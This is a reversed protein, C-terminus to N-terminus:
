QQLLRALEAAHEQNYTQVHIIYPVFVLMGVLLGIGLAKFEKHKIVVYFVWILNLTMIVHTVHAFLWSGSWPLVFMAMTGLYFIPLSTLVLLISKKNIMFVVFFSLYIISTIACSNFAIWNVFGVKLQGLFFLSSFLTVCALMIASIIGFIKESKSLIM